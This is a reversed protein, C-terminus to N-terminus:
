FTFREAHIRSRPVGLARLSGITRDMFGDSGCVFVTRSRIDPILSAIGEPALPDAPMGAAGRKGVLYHLGSGRAAAIADLERRFLVDEPNRARVLMVTRGLGPPLEELMARLPTVGIGGALLAVGDQERIGETTFTGYPGELAVRVGPRLGLMRHTDDGLDKITFRLTRGDPAASISFPHPRWWGGGTLLRVQFFQGARVPIRELHRGTVHLSVVGPAEHVVASVVPRHRLTLLIPAAVRFLLIPALCAVYLAVWFGVAVPDDLFDRGVSLEHAFALAIALYAYLHIGYWTERSVRRRAARISSVAVLVLLGFGVTAILVDWTAQLGLFEEIVGSEDTAAWGVTTGVVHGVILWLTLFGTWRHWRTLRDSGLSRDLWPSRSMLLLGLLAVYTGLLASLQGFATFAGGVTSLQSLGDHRVWMGTLVLAGACFIALVDSPLLAWRRPVASRTRPASELASLHSTVSM